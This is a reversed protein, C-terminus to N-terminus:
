LSEFTQLLKRLNKPVKALKQLLKKKVKCASDAKTVGWTTTKLEYAKLRLPFIHRFVYHIIDFSRSLNRDM